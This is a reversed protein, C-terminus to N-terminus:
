NPTIKRVLMTRGLIEAEVFNNYDIELHPEPLIVNQKQWAFKMSSSFLNARNLEDTKTELDAWLKDFETQTFIGSLYM